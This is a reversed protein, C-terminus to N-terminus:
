GDLTEVFRARVDAVHRDLTEATWGETSMPPHVVVEVTAPRIIVGHKPLADLANRFVIPVIPAGAGMAMHFAGKKFPGLRTTLSRTGEPAIVLSTGARLAAIAPRLGEIARRHDFRDIFVTGALTMAPGFIPNRRAEQKAVGVFDRRLLRCLLLTDIASQHNFVFVAPRHSWLHEEGQVDLHVGALATGLEGWTTIALNALDRRSWNLVGPVAGLALAPVISVTALASRVVETVSPTGRGTFRRVPWGRAAAVAALRRDPNTPRPRGVVELLPLDDLSDTYFYSDDLALGHERALTRAAEAKGEGWCTPRVHRGTLRGDEVELRTCMVHPIGLARALPEIQYRTASSVLALTHGRRRHASVLARAEPYVLAAIERAFIREALEELEAESVGRLWSATAAMLGSFGVRGLQFRVTNLVTDALDRPGMRGAMLRDRLFAVASFGAILTGDVDFFAGISPGSRDQDIGRTIDAHLAMGRPRSFVGMAARRDLRVAAERGSAGV